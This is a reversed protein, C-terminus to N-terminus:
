ETEAFAMVAGRVAVIVAPACTCTTVCDAAAHATVDIEGSDADIGAAPPVPVIRTEVLPPIQPHVAVDLAEHSVIV